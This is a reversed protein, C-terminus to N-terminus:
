SDVDEFDLYDKQVRGERGGVRGLMWGAPLSVDERVLVVEDVMLPLESTDRPEYSCLVRARVEGANVPISSATTSSFAAM